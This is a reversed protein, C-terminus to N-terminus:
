TRAEKSERKGIMSVREARSKMLELGKECLRKERGAQGFHLIAVAESM